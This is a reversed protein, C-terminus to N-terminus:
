NVFSLTYWQEDTADYVIELAGYDTNISANAASDINNGNGDITINNALANGKDKIKYSQGDVPSAPLTITQSSGSTQVLIVHSNNSATVSTVGTIDLINNLTGESGGGGGGTLGSQAIQRIIGTSSDRVLITDGSAGTSPTSMIALKSVATTDIYDTGTLKITNGGIIAAGTNGAEINHNIGGLIASQNAIAGHGTTQNTDNTSHNFSAVGNSNIEKNYAGYGGSHSVCGSATTCKGEAHSNSGSAITYRGEAHSGYNGSATTCRGEAHSYSGSATTNSGEAHSYNGSATTQSGEAHSVFGCARTNSGEAHSNSGCATTGLGEAHSYNGSATTSFGEAHSVFGCARTNSGEAHSYSGCATTGLGEAHSYNGSATTSFGEAHSAYGSATTQSGEAFSNNGCSISNSGFAIGHNNTNVVTNGTLSGGLSVIGGNDTLGNNFTNSSGGGGTLGSQSIQRIIGTSSNRVLITDGSTGGSPTSMIALKSVATTDIYSTGTLKITNGGIITANTNGSEINHNIGGLIVSQDAIAGHGITQNNDNTSHNFSTVGEALINYSYNGYGGAHSVFGSAITFRGEAHSGYGSAITYYGEAHSYSGSATTCYGEAHSVFGSAITFRGEAHSVFGSAITSCGEAHSNYGCARTNSGEAHSGYGSAITSFGEAFSNYGSAISNSGFAIGHNNTNIVTNGTLSGGLSVIGGNDTLGNNFTNSSGGGGTLGSQAIQRIIGTSSDRVLITDGSAGTSPTSMIALKSVATTDIYSTGTLKIAYGGIIAARVNGSEINHNIGGLIVSQDALAGHGSIQSGSNYSHNFSACGEALIDKNYAGRGGAHSSIGSARTCYGEAHSVGGSATTSFGEAHSAYNSATTSSGEAHSYNGSATTYCGEAHSVNGSAITFRGEAHSVFGSATTQSGEAHSVNGGAITNSGEAHSGYSSAITSRGESHSYNGGATTQSGEAHSSQGSAVSGCGFAIGYSNTNIVTNGTLTGGLSVTGGNDTLGNNFTNSSGGGGTLGSQNIQKIIGTSSDRVLVTDGSAGTSPLSMIALNPIIVHNNLTAASITTNIGNILAVNSLGSEITNNYGGIISSGSSNISNNTGIALSNNNSLTTANEGIRISSTTGSGAGFFTVGSILLRSTDTSTGGQLNSYLQLSM